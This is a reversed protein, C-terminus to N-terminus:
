ERIALLQNPPVTLEHRQRSDVAENYFRYGFRRLLLAVRGSNAAAVECVIVPVHELVRDGGLLVLM